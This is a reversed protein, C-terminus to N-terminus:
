DAGSFTLPMKATRGKVRPIEPTDIQRDSTPGDPLSYNLARDECAHPNLTKFKALVETKTVIIDRSCTRHAIVINPPIPYRVVVDHKTENTHNVINIVMSGPVVTSPACDDVYADTGDPSLAQIVRDGPIRYGTDWRGANDIQGVFHPFAICSVTCVIANIALLGVLKFGDRRRRRQM